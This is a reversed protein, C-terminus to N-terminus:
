TLRVSAATYMQNCSGNSCISSSEYVTYLHGGLFVIRMSPWSEILDRDTIPQGRKIMAVFRLYSSLAQNLKVPSLVKMTIRDPAITSIRTSGMVSDDSQAFTVVPSICMM